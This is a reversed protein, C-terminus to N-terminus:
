AALLALLQALASQAFGRNQASADVLLQQLEYCAPPEILDRVLILGFLTGNDSIGYVRARSARMAYARALIGTAPAVFRQQEPTVRLQAAQLWNQENIETLTVM